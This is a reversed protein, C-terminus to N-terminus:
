GSIVAAIAYDVPDVIVVQDEAVIYRYGALQPACSLGEEPFGFLEVDRPIEAGLALRLHLDSRVQDKPIASYICGMQDASLILAPRGTQPSSAQEISSPIVDVIAYTEPDVVCITDDVILYRYAAYAPVLALLAPAFRHLQHRRPIRSGITLAGNLRNRSIREAQHNGFLRHHVERRQQDTAQVRAVPQAGLNTALNPRRAAGNVQNPASQQPLVQRLQQSREQVQQQARERAGKQEVSRVRTRSRQEVAHQQPARQIASSRQPQARQVTATPRRAVARPAPPRAVQRPAAVAARPPAARSAPAAPRAAPKKNKDPAQAAGLSSLATLAITACMVTMLPRMEVVGEALFYGPQREVNTDSGLEM